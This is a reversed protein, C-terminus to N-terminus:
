GVLKEDKLFQEAGAAPDEKDVDVKKNLAALKESTLATSVKNLAKEFVYNGSTDRTILIAELIPVGSPVELSLGAAACVVTLPGVDVAPVPAAAM